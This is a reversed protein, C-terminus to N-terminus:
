PKGVFKAVVVQLELGLKPQVLLCQLVILAVDCAEREVIASATV